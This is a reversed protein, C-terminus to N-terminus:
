TTVTKKTVLPHYHTWAGKAGNVVTNTEGLLLLLLFYIFLIQTFLCYFYLCTAPAPKPTRSQSMQSNSFAHSLFTCLVCVCVSFSIVIAGRIATSISWRSRALVHWRLKVRLSFNDDCENCKADFYWTKKFESWGCIQSYVCQLKSWTAM